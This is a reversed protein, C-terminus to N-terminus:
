EGFIECIPHAATFDQWRQFLQEPFEAYHQNGEGDVLLGDRFAQGTNLRLEDRHWEGSTAVTFFAGPIHTVPDVYIAIHQGNFDEIILNDEAHILRSPYFKCFTDSWLGLGMELPPLRNDESHM